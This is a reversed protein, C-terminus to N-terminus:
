REQEWRVEPVLRLLQKYHFMEHWFARRLTKRASWRERGRQYQTTREGPPQEALRGLHERLFMRRIGVLRAFADDGYDQWRKVTAGEPVVRTTYWWEAIAVHDIIERVTRMDEALRRDLAIDSLGAVTTLLDARSLDLLLATQVLDDDSYSLADCAYFGETDCRDPNGTAPLREAIAFDALPPVTPTDYGRGNLWDATFAADSALRQLAVELSTGWGCASPWAFAFAIAFDPCTEVSVAVRDSIM